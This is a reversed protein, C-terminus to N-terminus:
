TELLVKKAGKDSILTSVINSYERLPLSSSASTLADIATYKWYEKSLSETLYDLFGNVLKGLSTPIYKGRSKVALNVATIENLRSYYQKRTLKVSSITLPVGKSICRFLQLSKEDALCKYVENESRSDFM